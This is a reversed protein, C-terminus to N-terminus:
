SFSMSRLVSSRCSAARVWDTGPSAKKASTPPSNPKMPRNRERTQRRGNSTLSSILWISSTPTLLRVRVPTTPKEIPITSAICLRPVSARKPASLKRGDISASLTILSIPGTSVLRTSAPRSPAPM